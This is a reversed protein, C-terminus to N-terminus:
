TAPRSLKASVALDRDDALAAPHYTQAFHQRLLAHSFSYGDATEDLLGATHAQQLFSRHDAPLAGERTLLWSLTQQRFAAKIFRVTLLCLLPLGLLLGYATILSLLVVMRPIDHVRQTSRDPQGRRRRRTEGRASNGTIAAAILGATLEDAVAV